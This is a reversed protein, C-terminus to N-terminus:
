PKKKLNETLDSSKSLEDTGMKIYDIKLYSQSWGLENQQQSKRKPKQNKLQNLKHSINIMMKKCLPFIKLTAKPM